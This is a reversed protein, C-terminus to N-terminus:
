FEGVVIGEEKLYDLAEQLHDFAILEQEMRIEGEFTHIILFIGYIEVLTFQDFSADDLGDGSELVYDHLTIVELKM